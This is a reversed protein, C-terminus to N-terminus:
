RLHINYKLRDARIISSCYEVIGADAHAVREIHLAPQNPSVGLVKASAKGMLIAEFSESAANPRFGALEEISHYLGKQAVMEGTLTPCIAQPIYSTEHAFAIGDALRLREIDFVPMGPPIGLKAAAFRPCSVTEFGLVCSSSVYGGRGANDGFSYFGTLKQEIQPQTVITGRGQKRFILGKSKLEELALRVTMRSVSYQECLASETPIREDKPWAGSAIKDLFIIHLQRYLPVPSTEDLM